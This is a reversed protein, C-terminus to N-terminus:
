GIGHREPKAPQQPLINKRIQAEAKTWRRHLMMKLRMLSKRQLKGALMASNMKVMKKEKEPEKPKYAKAM